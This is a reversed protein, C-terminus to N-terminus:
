ISTLKQFFFIEFGNIWFGVSAVSIPFVQVQVLVGLILQKIWRVRFPLFAPTLSDVPVNMKYSLPCWLHLKCCHNKCKRSVLIITMSQAALQVMWCLCNMIYYFALLYNNVFSISPFLTSFVCILLLFLVGTQYYYM